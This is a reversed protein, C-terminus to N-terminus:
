SLILKMKNFLKKLFSFNKIKKIKFKKILIIFNWKIKNKYNNKHKLIM